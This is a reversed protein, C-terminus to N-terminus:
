AHEAFHLVSSASADPLLADLGGLAAFHRVPQGLMPDDEILDGAAVGTVRAIAQPPMAIVRADPVACLADAQLANAFFAASHGTGILAGVIRIGRGRVVGLVCAHRALARSLLTAEAARSVEHGASDELIVLRTPSDDRRLGPDPPAQTLSAPGGSERPRGVVHALLAVDAEDLAMADVPRDHMPALIWAHPSRWLPGAVHIANWGSPLARPAAAARSATELDRAVATALSQAAAGGALWATVDAARPGVGEALGASVRASSGYLAEIARADSAVLEGSGRATEVVRPGSLGFRIDPLLCLRAAACALVSTGGFVDGVAVAATEIGAARVDVFARLARGLALEAANAEHLRVGGSALLLAVGHPREARAREFLARLADGHAAGVSGGLFREDQAAALWTRGAIRLRAIVVGDDDHAGIGFRALHPSPRPTDLSEVSGPDAIAALRASPALERLRSNEDARSPPQM